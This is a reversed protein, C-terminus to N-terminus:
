KTAREGFARDDYDDDWAGDLVLRGDGEDFVVTRQQPSSIQSIDIGYNWLVLGNDRATKANIEAGEDTLVARQLGDKENVAGLSYAGKPVFVYKGDASFLLRDHEEFSSINPIENIPDERGLLDNRRVLVGALKNPKGNPLKDLFWLTGTPSRTWYDVMCDQKAQQWLADDKESYMGNILVALNRGEVPIIEPDASITGYCEDHTGKVPPFAYSIEGGNVDLWSRGQRSSFKMKM